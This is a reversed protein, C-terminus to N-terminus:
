EHYICRTEETPQISTSCVQYVGDCGIVFMNHLVSALRVESVFREKLNSLTKQALGIIGQSSFRYGLFDFGRTIRGIFTKDFALKFKLRDMLQQMKKIVCRLQHRTKTLIVRDDMYRVYFCDSKMSDDLSKLLLGGMELRYHCGKPIGLEILQHDGQRVEVRNLYQYLLNLLRPNNLVAKPVVAGASCWYTLRGTDFLQAPSLPYRGQLLQMRTDNRHQTWNSHFSWIDSNHSDNQHCKYIHVVAEDLITNSTLQIM